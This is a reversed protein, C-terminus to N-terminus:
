LMTRYLATYFTKMQSETGGEIEIRSLGDNWVKEAKTMTETFSDNGIERKLNLEAQEFSIFSSATRIHVTENEKTKFKVAAMVHDATEETRGPFIGKESWTCVSDIEKDFYVVFYNHFNEPVGGKNNRCYGILKKEKPIVKIYSGKNFADILLYSNDTKPYKVRFQAARETPTIEVSVNYDGLYVQYYYPKAIERKHSFWSAREDEPFKLTGTIPMISFSGYDGIWPSPQHTQRFGKIKYEDYTYMWGSGMKGTQPSWFNMAWPLAIAPYTNGNSLKYDSDTGVLPNVLGAPNIKKAGKDGASVIATLLLVTM